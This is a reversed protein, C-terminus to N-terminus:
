KKGKKKNTQKTIEKTVTLDEISLDPIFNKWESKPCFVWGEKVRQNALDDKVRQVIEDRKICKM